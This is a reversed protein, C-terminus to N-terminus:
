FDMMQREVWDLHANRKAESVQDMAHLALYRLKVDVHCTHRMARCVVKRPPDGALFTRLRSGGYSTVAALRKINMLNPKLKGGELNFSVGPLFVRDVFGKLIAPFGYNWVPFVLILAEARLLREVYGDVLRRNVTEDHYHRREDESMVPDFAEGYLDCDDVQWNRSHLAQVVREHLASGFSEPCPHAFVVLARTM